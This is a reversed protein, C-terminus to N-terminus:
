WSVGRHCWTIQYFFSSKMYIWISISIYALFTIVVISKLRSVRNRLYWWSGGNAVCDCVYICEIWNRTITIPIRCIIPLILVVTINRISIEIMCVKLNASRCIQYKLVYEALSNRSLFLWNTFKRRQVRRMQHGNFCLVSRHFQVPCWNGKKIVNSIDIISIIYTVTHDKWLWKSGYISVHQHMM